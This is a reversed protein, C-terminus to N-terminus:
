VLTEVGGLGARFASQARDDPHIGRGLEHDQRAVLEVPDYDVRVLIEGVDVLTRPVEPVRNKLRVEGSRNFYYLQRM